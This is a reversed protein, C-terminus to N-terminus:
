NKIKLYILSVNKINEKIRKTENKNIIYKNDILDIIDQEKINNPLLNKNIEIIKNTKRDELRVINDIINEVTYM